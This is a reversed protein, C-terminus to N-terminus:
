KIFPWHVKQFPAPPGPKRESSLRWRHNSYSGPQLSSLEPQEWGDMAAFQRTFFSMPSIGNPGHKKVAFVFNESYCLAERTAWITFFGGAICSVCTQDRTWSSGRSSPMAIQELIRTQLIGHVSSDPPSYDMPDCLTLRSQLSQATFAHSM